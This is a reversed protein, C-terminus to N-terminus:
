GRIRTLQDGYGESDAVVDILAPGKGAFAESLVPAIDADPEVRWARCGLAEACAAINIGSTHVGRAQYQQRQQKIDILSLTADNIVIVTINCGHEKATALEGLCMMLGGDGTVAVVHRDPEELSSAIAAPLAYGMTSLGNSKLAGFPESAPWFALAAFMHAGADMTLRTGPPSLSAAAEIVTQATHGKGCLTFKEAIGRRAKDIEEETWVSQRLAPSLAEAIQALPGMVRCAPEYPAPTADAVCLDLLPSEYSWSGPIIEIPDLGFTVILDASHLLESEAIAGTFLGAFGPSTAPIIGSAKLTPLVPCGLANALLRLALPADGQRSELGTLIVPRNCVGLLRKAQELREPDPASPVPFEPLKGPASVSASADGATLDLHVPGWPPTMATLIAKAFDVAGTDPTLHGQLKTIPKYLANQDLAQHPSSAPGDTILIVPSKELYAYAIGNVASAAGPGIGTLLVGPTGTLEGTVAAMIAAATETRTLIFDIGARGAAEMLALSSGGGPIGFIRKVGRTRLMDMLLTALVPSAPAPRDM